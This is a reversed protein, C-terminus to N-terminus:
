ALFKHNLLTQASPREKYNWILASNLFDVFQPQTEKLDKLYNKDTPSQDIRLGKYKGKEDFKTFIFVRKDVLKPDGKKNISGYKLVENRMTLITDPTPMGILKVIMSFLQSEDRAGFLPDGHYLEFILAIFSWIDIKENYRCGLLIEPARYYRSQIYPYSVDGIASSSGFDIIKIDLSYSDVLMINEPKLDAHVFGQKHIFDLGSLLGKSWKRIISIDFGNFKTAELAEFLNVGLLETSICIHSRFNFHGYYALLNEHKMKKLIKIENICQLSWTIDNKMIKISVDTGTKHDYCKMVNGFMGKGLKSIVQYRYNIHDGTEVILNKEGDDFGFNGSFDRLNSNKSRKHGIFYVEHNKLIEAKEYSSMTKTQIVEYPDQPSQKEILEGGNTQLINRTKEFRLLCDKLESVTTIKKHKEGLSSSTRITSILRPKQYSPIRNTKLPVSNNSPKTLDQLGVNVSFSKTMKSRRKPIILKENPQEKQILINESRQLKAKTAKTEIATSTSNSMIRSSSLSPKRTTPTINSVSRVRTNLDSITSSRPLKATSKLNSATTSRTLRTLLPSNDYPDQKPKTPRLIPHNEKSRQSTIVMPSNLSVSRMSKSHSIVRKPKSPSSSNAALNNQVRSKLLMSTRNGLYPSPTPHLQEKPLQQAPEENQHQPDVKRITTNDPTTTKLKDDIAIDNVKSRKKSPSVLSLTSLQHALKTLTSPPTPITEDFKNSKPTSMNSDKNIIPTLTKRELSTAVLPSSTIRPISSKKVNGLTSDDLPEIPVSVQRNKIPIKSASNSNKTYYSINEKNQRTKLMISPSQDENKPVM